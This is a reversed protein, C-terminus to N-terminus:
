GGPASRKRWRYGASVRVGGGVGVEVFTGGGGGPAHETGLVLLVYPSVRGDGALLSLGAGGYVGGGTRKAPDLLFHWALDARAAVGHGDLGGVTVATQWRTRGADRWADGLGGGAFFPRSAIVLAQLQVERVGQASATGAGLAVLLALLAVRDPRSSSSM